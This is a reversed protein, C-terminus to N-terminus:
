LRAPRCAAAATRRAPPLCWAWCALLLFLFAVRPMDMVSSVLGLACGGALAAALWPAAPQGRAAGFSLRWLAGGLLLGVLVLGLVGREILLELVLNDIHWPLFYADVSPYWHALGQEFDGNALLGTRTGASLELRDVDVVTAPAVVSIDLSVLRPAWGLEQGLAPGRLELAVREWQGGTGARRVLYRQQCDLEYLLHRECVRVRLYASHESRLDFAVRYRAHSVAAVQQAMAYRGALQLRTPPGHLRLFHGQAGPATEALVAAAGPFEGAPGLAAYRTPLRGLGIGLLWDRPTQAISLGRTWHALRSGFDNDSARLREVMFSSAMAMALVQAALLIWLLLNARKRWRPAPAAVPRLHWRWLVGAVVLSGLVAGYVGRAFTTICVYALLHLLLAAALWTRLRRASAVAWAAFPVAIALYADIAAGGVHMEWFLGVTRYDSGFNFLGPLAAREWLVAAALVGLGVCMGSALRRTAARPARRLTARLLPLALLAYVLSKAVRLSNGWGTYPGLEYPPAWHQDLLGQALGLAVSAWLALALVTRGEWFREGAAAGARTRGLALRAHGAALAGLVVLDFEDGVIRGTWPALSALPLVAPLVFLWAQPWRWAAWLWLAWAALALGPSLPHALAQWSGVAACAAAFWAALVRHGAPLTM